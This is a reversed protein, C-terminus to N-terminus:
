QVPYNQVIICSNLRYIKGAATIMTICCNIYCHISYEAQDQLDHYLIKMLCNLNCSSHLDGKSCLIPRYKQGLLYKFVKKQKWFYSLILAAKFVLAHQLCIRYPPLNVRRKSAVTVTRSYLGLQKINNTVHDLWITSIMEIFYDIM